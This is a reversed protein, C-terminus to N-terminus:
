YYIGGNQRLTDLEIKITLVETLDKVDQSMQRYGAGVYIQGAMVAITCAGWFIYYKNSKIQHKIKTIRTMLLRLKKHQTEMATVGLPNKYQAM